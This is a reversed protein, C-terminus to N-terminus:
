RRIVLAGGAVLLVIGAMRAFTPAVVPLGAVGFRDILVAGTLQGGMLAAILATAGLRPLFLVTSLVFVAGLLGGTLQWWPAGRVGGLKLQGSAAGVLALVMLGVGFNIATATISNARRALAANVPPQLASLMGALFMVLGFFYRGM